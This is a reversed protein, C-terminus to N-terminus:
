EQSPLFGTKPGEEAERGNEYRDTDTAVSM